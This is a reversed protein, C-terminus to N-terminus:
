YHHLGRSRDPSTVVLDTLFDFTTPAPKAFLDVVNALFKQEFGARACDFHIETTKKQCIRYTVVSLISLIIKTM